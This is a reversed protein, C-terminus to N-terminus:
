VHSNGLQQNTITSIPEVQNLVQLTHALTLTAQAFQMAEIASTTKEARVTLTQITNKIVTKM